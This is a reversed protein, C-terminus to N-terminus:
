QVMNVINIGDVRSGVNTGVAEVVPTKADGANIGAVEVVLDKADQPVFLDDLMQAVQVDNDMVKTPMHAQVKAITGWKEDSDHPEGLGKWVRFM